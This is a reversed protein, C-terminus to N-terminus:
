RYLELLNSLYSQLGPFTLQAAIVENTNLQIAMERNGAITWTLYTKVWIVENIGPNNSPNVSNYQDIDVEVISNLPNNRKQVFYRLMKGNQIEISNPVPTYPVPSIYKSAKIQRISNYTQVDPSIDFRKTFLEISNNSPREGSFMQGNPLKHYLGEYDNFTSDVLQGPRAYLGTTIQHLNYHPRPLPM